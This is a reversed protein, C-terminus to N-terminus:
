DERVLPLRIIFNAGRGPASTVRISGKHNETIIFYSVSLGLGTGVGRGKTTFFPEFISKQVEPAMGPGNDEIEIRAMDGDRTLRINFQAEDQGGATELSAMAQAGNRLINFLVQQIKGAECAVRPMDPDFERVIKINRFDYNKKLDYDNKSLDLTNNILQALDAPSFAGEGKRAFSLMNEIIATARNGSKGIADLMELIKRETLYDQLGAMSIGYKEATEENKPLSPTLRNKVVQSSQVVAALPNNIEHAMGAALGGLSLMKESQIMMEEMRVQETVDDVRIVAGECREQVLPYVTIDSYRAQGGSYSLVKTERQIECRVIAKAVREMERDLEPFVSALAHGRANEVSIGTAKEAERNWHIVRGELDIGVLVSPMGNIINQMHVRLRQVELEATRRQSIDVIFGQYCVVGGTEDRIEKGSIMCWVPEGTKTKMQVEFDKVEGTRNMEDIFRDRREPLHYLQTALDTVLRCMEEGSEYELMKAMAPSASILRGRPTTQFIGEVANQYIYRYKKESEKLHEHAKELEQTKTQIREELNRNLEALRRTLILRSNMEQKLRLAAKVRAQVVPISFPKTIFDVGGLNLGKAEDVDQGLATVFIVPLDWTDANAKLRSCVEYGDMGPMMIDLLILDPMTGGFVVDLAEQGSTTCIIEYDSELNEILIQINEPNDDVVLVIERDPAAAPSSKFLHRYKQEYNTLATRADELERQKKEVQQQLMENMGELQAKLLLRRDEEKKLNIVSRVRARVVPMSFPKTIYDQAGLEIGKIEESERVKGTVFIVPIRRTKKEAKLTSLIEYGDLGPMVIDLLILDPTPPAAALALADEGSTACIVEFEKELEEVLPWINEPEDDVVLIKKRDTKLM